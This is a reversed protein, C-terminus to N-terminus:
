VGFFSYAGCYTNTISSQRGRQSRDAGNKRSQAWEEGASENPKAKTFPFRHYCIPYLPFLFTVTSSDEAECHQTVLCWSYQKLTADVLPGRRCSCGCGCGCRNCGCSCDSYGCACWAAFMVRRSCGCVCSKVIVAKEPIVISSEGGERQGQLPLQERIKKKETNPYKWSKSHNGEVLRYIAGRM